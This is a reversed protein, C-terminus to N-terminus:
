GYRPHWARGVKPRSPGRGPRVVAPGIVVRHEAALAIAEETLHERKLLNCLDHLLQWNWDVDPGGRAVPIIHDKHTERLDDPLRKSCWPCLWEQREALPRVQKYRKERRYQQSNWTM